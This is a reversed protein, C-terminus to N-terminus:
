HLMESVRLSTSSLAGADGPLVGYSRRSVSSYRTLGIIAAIVVDSYPKTIYREAGADLAMKKSLDSAVGSYFVVPIEPYSSRLIRCLDDGAADPLWMDLLFLDFREKHPIAFADRASNACTIDIDELELMASLMRCSDDDDEVYLIHPKDSLATM